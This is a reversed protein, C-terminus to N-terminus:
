AIGDHVNGNNGGMSEVRADFIQDRKADDKVRYDVSVNLGYLENIRECAERRANLNVYRVSETQESNAGVEAEVLREKKDQNANDIGLLGMCESWTRARVISLKEVSDPDVGMDLVKIQEQADIINANVPIVSQGEDIMRSVNAATLQGGEAVSLIRPQRMNKSNIEITRDLNALRTAYTMVIDLDPVRLYNSWIPVCDVGPIRRTTDYLMNGFPTYHTPEDYWNVPGTQNCMTALYKTGYNLTDSRFFLVLAKSFLQLELFRVNIEKPMGSWIFRNSCLETLVRTYTRTLLAERTAGFGAAFAASTGKLHVGYLNEKVYDNRKGM